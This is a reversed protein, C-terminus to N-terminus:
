KTTATLLKKFTENFIEGNQCLIDSRLSYSNDQCYLKVVKYRAIQSICKEVSQRTFKGDGSSYDFNIFLTVLYPDKWNENIIVYYSYGDNRFVIDGEKDIKPNYGERALHKVISLRIAMQEKNFEKAQIGVVMTALLLFTTILRKM